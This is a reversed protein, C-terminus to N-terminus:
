VRFDTNKGKRKQSKFEDNVDSTLLSLSVDNMTKKEFPILLIFHM